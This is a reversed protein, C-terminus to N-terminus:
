SKLTKKIWKLHKESIFSYVGPKKISGCKKGGFSTVGVLAGSCLLAGGSDGKCTDAKKKGNSGACIMDCIIVPKNNYYEPSNCKKRDIVTVNVSMLVDSMQKDKATTIGWGAVICSTGAPEKTTKKGLKLCKVMKTKKAPKELKLLKLDNVKKNDNYEPHPIERKVGLVQRSGKEEGKISHVGLLVKKIGTCHAATLVWKPDMLIGGCDPANTELLAMFPLSHPQVETGGIIESGHCLRVFLLVACSIFAALDRLWYMEESRGSMTKKIWKLNKETLFSYVGPYRMVGCNKGFSTVGVLVGNCLLPGGSDGQCTDAPSKGDSGACIMSSTIVPKLNYYDPSNCKVRDIVTVNVSRLVDSMQKAINNTKGWGAVQCSTGAEPQKVVKGLKLCKVTETQKVPKDLKLLMLDNVRDTEDYCPHPVRKTVKRVQRSDQEKEKISHVGLLVKKIDNCHAATLVWKPDILIGGCIPKNTELLAMFPLSHKKVEKGNIIESGHSSNVVLLIVCSIFASLCFM